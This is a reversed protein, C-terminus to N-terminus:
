VGVTSFELFSREDMAIKFNRNCTMPLLNVQVLSASHFSNFPKCLHVNLWNLYRATQYSFFVNDDEHSVICAQGGQKRQRCEWSRYPLPWSMLHPPKTEEKEKNASERFAGCPAM